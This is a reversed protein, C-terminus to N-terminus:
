SQNHSVQSRILLLYMVILITGMPVHDNSKKIIEDIWASFFKFGQTINQIIESDMSMIRDHSLFGREFLRNCAELYKLTAEVHVKDSPPPTQHIHAYLESLVQEQQMNLLPIYLYYMCACYFSGAHDQSSCCKTKDLFGKIHIGRKTKSGHTCM